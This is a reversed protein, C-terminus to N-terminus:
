TSARALHSLAHRIEPLRVPAEDIFRNLLRCVGGGDCRGAGRHACDSCRPYMGPLEERVLSRFRAFHALLSPYDDFAFLSPREVGFLPYCHFVSMDPWVDVAAQCHFRLEAGLRVLRGLQEDTFACLPFGCDLSPRIGLRALTPACDMFRTVVRPIEESSLHAGGKAAVIPQALGLRLSRQMSHRLIMPFLFAPDGAEAGLTHGAACWPGCAELFAELAEGEGEQPPHLAPDNLNVVFSIREPSERRLLATLAERRPATMIGCTFVTLELGFDLLFALMDVFDPHLSPEGGLLSLSRLGSSRAFSAAHVLNEWSMISGSEATTAMAHRAFCYPCARVCSTTLILNLAKGKVLNLLYRCPTSLALLELISGSPGESWGLHVPDAGESFM